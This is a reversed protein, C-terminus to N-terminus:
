SASKLIFCKITNLFYGDIGIKDLTEVLFQTLNELNNKAAKPLFIHNKEKFCNVHHIINISKRINSIRTNRADIGSLWAM